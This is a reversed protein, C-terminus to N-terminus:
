ALPPARPSISSSISPAVPRQPAAIAVVAVLGGPMAVSPAAPVVANSGITLDQCVTCHQTDHHPGELYEHAALTFGSASALFLALAATNVFRRFVSLGRSPHLNDVNSRITLAWNSWPLEAVAATYEM